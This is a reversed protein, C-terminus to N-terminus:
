PLKAHTKNPFPIFEIEFKEGLHHLLVDWVAEIEGIKALDKTSKKQLMTKQIPRWLYEKVTDVSWPMEIEPKLVKRIDLGKENLEKAIYGLGLHLASNQPITRVGTERGIEAWFTAGEYKLLLEVPEKTEWEPFGNKAKFYYLM